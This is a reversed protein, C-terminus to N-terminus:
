AGFTTKYWADVEAKAQSEAASVVTGPWIRELNQKLKQRREQRRENKRRQKWEDKRARRAERTLKQLEARLKSVEAARDEEEEGCRMNCTAALNALAMLTDRHLPGLVRRRAELVHREKAEAEALKACDPGQMKLLLALNGLSALIDPHDGDLQSTRLELVENELQAAEDWRRQRHYVAALVARADAMDPDNRQLVRSGRKLVCGLLEEAMKWRRQGREAATVKKKSPIAATRAGAPIVVEREVERCTQVCGYIAALNKESRLTRPHDPGQQSRRTELVVLELSEAERWRKQKVLTMALSEMTEITELHKNGLLDKKKDLIDRELWNAKIWYGRSRYSAALEGRSNLLRRNNEKKAKDLEYQRSNEEMFKNAFYAQPMDPSTDKREAIGKEIELYLRGAQDLEGLQTIIGALRQKLLMVLECSSGLTNELDEIEMEYAVKVNNAEDRVHAEGVNSWAVNGSDFFRM